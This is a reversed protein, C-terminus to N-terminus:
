LSTAIQESVRNLFVRSVRSSSATKFFANRIKTKTANEALGALGDEGTVSMNGSAFFYVEDFGEYNSAWLVNDKMGKEIWAIFKAEDESRDMEGHISVFANRLEYPVSRGKRWRRWEGSMISFNIV